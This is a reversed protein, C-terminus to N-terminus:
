VREKWLIMGKLLLATLTDTNPMPLLNLTLETETGLQELMVYAYVNSSTQANETPNHTTKIKLYSTVSEGAIIIASYRSENHLHFSFLGYTLLMILKNM